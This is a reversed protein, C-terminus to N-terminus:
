RRDPAQRRGGAPLACASHIHDFVGGQGGRRGAGHSPTVVRLYPKLDDMRDRMDKDAGKLLVEVCPNVHTDIDIVRYGQRM